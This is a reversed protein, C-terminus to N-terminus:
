AIGWQGKLPALKYAYKEWTNTSIRTAGFESGVGVLGFQVEQEKWLEAARELNVEAALSLQWGAIPDDEARDIEANIEGAAAVLVRTLAVSQDATPTRIKLIRALEASTAYVSDSSTNQIPTTPASEDGNGDVFV